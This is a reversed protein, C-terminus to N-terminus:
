EQGAFLLGILTQYHSEEEPARARDLRSLLKTCLAKRNLHRGENLIDMVIQGLTEQQSPLSAKPKTSYISSKSLQLILDRM